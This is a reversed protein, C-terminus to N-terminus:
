EETRNIGLEDLVEEVGEETLLSLEEETDEIGEEEEVTDLILLIEETKEREEVKERAGEEIEMM